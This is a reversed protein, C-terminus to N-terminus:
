AQEALIQRGARRWLHAEPACEKCSPAALVVQQLPRGTCAAVELIASAMQNIRRQTAARKEKRSM